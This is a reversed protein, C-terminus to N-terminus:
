QALSYACLRKTGMLLEPPMLVRFTAEVSEFFISAKDQISHYNISKAFFCLQAIIVACPV